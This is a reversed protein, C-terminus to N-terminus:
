IIKGKKGWAPRQKDGGAGMIGSVARFDGDGRYRRQKSDM